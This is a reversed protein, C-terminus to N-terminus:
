QPVELSLVRGMAPLKLARREPAGQRHGARGWLRPFLTRCVLLNYYVKDVLVLALKCKCGRRPLLLARAPTKSGKGAGKKM